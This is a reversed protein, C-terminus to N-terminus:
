GPTQSNLAASISTAIESSTVGGCYLAGKEVIFVDVCIIL